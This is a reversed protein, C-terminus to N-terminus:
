LVTEPESVRTSATRCDGGGGGGEGPGSAAGTALMSNIRENGSSGLKDPAEVARMMVLFFIRNTRRRLDRPDRNGHSQSPIRENAARPRPSPRGRSLTLM